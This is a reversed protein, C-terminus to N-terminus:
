EGTQGDTLERLIDAQGAHRATEEIMHTMIWRLSIDDEGGLSVDGLDFPAVALDAAECEDRYFSIVSEVTEDDAIRWEADPDDDTWPFEVDRNAMVSQFWSREVYALHKLMGLLTNDSPVLQRLAQEKTLGTLRWVMTGRQFDLFAQLTERESGGYPPDVREITM